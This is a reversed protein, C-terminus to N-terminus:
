TDRGGVPTIYWTNVDSNIVPAFTYKHLLLLIIRCISTVIVHPVINSPWLMLFMSFCQDLNLLPSLNKFPLVTSLWTPISLNMESLLTWTLLLCFVSSPVANLAGNLLLADRRLKLLWLSGLSFEWESNRLSESCFVFCCNLLNLKQNQWM